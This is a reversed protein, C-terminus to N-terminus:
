RRECKPQYCRDPQPLFRNIYQSIKDKNRQSIENFFIAINFGQPLNSETRVVVGKCQVKEATKKEKPELPFLLMVSLKTMPPIYKDVYCYAGICSINKTQTAFDYGKTSIKVPLEKQIRPYRRREVTNSSM